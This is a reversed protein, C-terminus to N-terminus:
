DIELVYEEGLAEAIEAMMDEGLADGYEEAFDKLTDFKEYSAIDSSTQYVVLSGGKTLYVDTTNNSALLRGVFRVKFTRASDVVGTEPNVANVELEQKSMAGESEEQMKREREKRDVYQRLAEALLGSLSDGALQEAKEWLEKDGERVYIMKTPM